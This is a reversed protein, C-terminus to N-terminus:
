ETSIFEVMARGGGGTFVTTGIASLAITMNGSADYIAASVAGSESFRSVASVSFNSMALSAGNTFSVNMATVADGGAFASTVVFALNTVISNPPIPITKTHNTSDLTIIRYAPVYNITSTNPNGTEEGTTIPGSFNTKAM